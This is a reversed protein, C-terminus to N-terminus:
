LLVMLVLSFVAGAVLGVGLCGSKVFDGSYENRRMSRGACEGM